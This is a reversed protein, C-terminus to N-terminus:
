VCTHVFTYFLVLMSRLNYQVMALSEMKVSVIAPMVVVPTHVLVTTASKSVDTVIRLVSM